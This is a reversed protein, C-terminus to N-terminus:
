HARRPAFEVTDGSGELHARCLEITLELESATAHELEDYAQSFAKRFALEARKSVPQGSARRLRLSATAKPQGHKVALAAALTVVSALHGVEAPAPRAIM